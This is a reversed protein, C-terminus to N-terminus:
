SLQHGVPPAIGFHTSTEVAGINAGLFVFEWGYREQQRKVLKKVQPATYRRSANEM